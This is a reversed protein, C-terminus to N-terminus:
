ETLTGEMLGRTGYGGSSIGIEGIARWVLISGENHVLGPAGQLGLVLV